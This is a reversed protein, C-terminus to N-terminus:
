TKEMRALLEELRADVRQPLGLDRTILGHLGVFRQGQEDRGLAGAVLRRVIITSRPPEMCRKWLARPGWGLPYKKGPACSCVIGNNKHMLMGSPSAAELTQQLKEASMLALLASILAPPGMEPWGPVTDNSTRPAM